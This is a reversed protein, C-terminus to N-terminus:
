NLGYYKKYVQSLYRGDKYGLAAAIQNLNLNGEEMLRAAEEMKVRVVHDKFNEGSEKFLFSLYNPSVYVYEAVTILSVDGNLNQKIYKQAKEIIGENRLNRSDNVAKTVELIEKTVIEELETLTSRKGIDNLSRFLNELKECLKTEEESKDVHMFRILYSLFVLLKSLVYDQGKTSCQGLLEFYGSLAETVGKIDGVKMCELITEEKNQVMLWDENQEREIDGIYIVSGMGMFFRYNLAWEAEHYAKPLSAADSILRGLGLSAINGTRNEFEKQIRVAKGELYLLFDKRGVEAPFNLIVVIRDKLDEFAICRYEEELVEQCIEKLQLLALSTEYKDRFTSDLECLILALRETSLDIGLFEFQKEVQDDEYEIDNLLQNLLHQRVIPISEELKKKLRDKEKERETEAYIEDRVTCLTEMLQEIKAPKLLYSCAKFDMAKKVYEFEEHGSLLVVKIMPYKEYVQKTLEIGDVVPMVVDTLIIDPVNAKIERLAEEGNSVAGIIEFGNQKWEGVSCIGERLIAEDEVVLLKIM